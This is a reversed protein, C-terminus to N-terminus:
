RRRGRSGGRLSPSRRARASIIRRCDVIPAGMRPGVEEVDEREGVTKKRERKRGSRGNKSQNYSYMKTMLRNRPKPNKREAGSRRNRTANASPLPAMHSM